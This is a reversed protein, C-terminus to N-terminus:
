LQWPNLARVEFEKGSRGFTEQKVVSSKPDDTRMSDALTMNLCLLVFLVSIKYSRKAM